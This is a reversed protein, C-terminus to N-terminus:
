RTPTIFCLINEKFLTEQLPSMKKLLMPSLLNLAEKEGTQKLRFQLIQKIM